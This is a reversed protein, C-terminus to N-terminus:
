MAIATYPGGFTNRAERQLQHRRRIGALDIGVNWNTVIATWAAPVKASHPDGL